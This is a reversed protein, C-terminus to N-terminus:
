SLGAYELLEYVRARTLEAKKQWVIFDQMSGDEYSAGAEAAAQEKQSIWNKQEATLSEMKEPNLFEKLFDWVTNLAGDWVQYLEKAAENMEDQTLPDDALSTELEDARVEAMHIINKLNDRSDYSSFAIQQTKNLLAFYPLIAPEEQSVEYLSLWSQYEEPIDTLPTGPVAILIEDGKALGNCESYLIRVDNMIEETGPPNAFTLEEVKISFMNESIAAPQSFQGTFDCLYQTGNPYADSYSGADSDSYQGSFSGDEQIELMTSWAGAGSSFVFTFPKLSEFSFCQSMDDSAGTESATESLSDTQSETESADPSSDPISPQASDPDISIDEASITVPELQVDSVCAAASFLLLGAPLLFYLKKYM